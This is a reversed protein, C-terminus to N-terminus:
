GRPDDSQLEGLLIRLLTSKGAGNPGVLAIREQKRVVVNFGEFLMTSYSKSLHEAQVVMEGSPGCPFSFRTSRSPGEPLDVMSKEYRELRREMARARRHLKENQRAWRRM